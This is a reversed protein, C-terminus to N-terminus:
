EGQLRALAMVCPTLNDEPAEQSDDNRVTMTVRKPVRPVKADPKQMDAKAAIKDVQSDM